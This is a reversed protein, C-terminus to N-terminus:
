WKYKTRFPKIKTIRKAYKGIEEYNWAVIIAYQFCKNDKKHVPNITAKKIKIWYPSDVYSGGGKLNIKQCKYYLLSVFDLVFDSAKM